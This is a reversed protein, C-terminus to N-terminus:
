RRRTTGRFRWWCRASYRRARWGGITPPIPLSPRGPTIAGQCVARRDAAAWVMVLRAEKRDLGDQVYGCVRNFQKANIISGIDTAEELPDGIVLKDTQAVLRELFADFIKRHLFLRSGATCSQSQRTFRMSAIIGDIAWAENADPYM